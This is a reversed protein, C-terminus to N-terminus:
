YETPIPGFVTEMSESIWGVCFKWLASGGTFCGISNFDKYLCYDQLVTDTYNLM